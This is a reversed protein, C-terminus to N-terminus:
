LKRNQWASCVVAKVKSLLYNVMYHGLRPRPQMTQRKETKGLQCPRGLPSSAEPYLPREGMLVAGGSKLLPNNINM